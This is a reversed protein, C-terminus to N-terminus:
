ALEAEAWWALLDLGKVFDAGHLVQRKRRVAALRERRNAVTFSVRARNVHTWHHAIEHLVAEAMPERGIVIAARGFHLASEYHGAGSNRRSTTRVELPPLRFAKVAAGTLARAQDATLSYWLRRLRDVDAHREVYAYEHFPYTSITM